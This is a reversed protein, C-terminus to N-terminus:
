LESNVEDMTADISGNLGILVRIRQVPFVYPWVSNAARIKQKCVESIIGCLICICKIGIKLIM